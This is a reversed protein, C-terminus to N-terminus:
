NWPLGAYRLIQTGEPRSIEEFFWGCSTFMLLAQRQMELLRLADIKESKSLTRSQHVALFHEFDTDPISDLIVAIYDDRTQWPNASFNRDRFRM